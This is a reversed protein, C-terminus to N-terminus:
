ISGSCPNVTPQYQWDWKGYRGVDALQYHYRYFLLSYNQENIGTLPCLADYALVTSVSLTLVV